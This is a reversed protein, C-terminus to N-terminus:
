QIKINSVNLHCSTKKLLLCTWAVIDNRYYLNNITYVHTYIYEGQIFLTVMLHNWLIYHSSVISSRVKKTILESNSNLESILTYCQPTTLEAQSCKIADEFLPLTLLKFLMQAIINYDTPVETRNRRVALRVSLHQASTQHIQARESCISKIASCRLALNSYLGAQM